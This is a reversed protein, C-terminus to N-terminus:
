YIKFSWRNVYFEKDSFVQPILKTKLIRVFPRLCLEVNRLSAFLRRVVQRDM